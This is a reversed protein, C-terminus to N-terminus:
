LAVRKGVRDSICLMVTDTDRNWIEFIFIMM